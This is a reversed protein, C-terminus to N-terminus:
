GAGSMGPSPFIYTLAVIRGSRLTSTVLPPLNLRSLEALTRVAAVYSGAALAHVDTAASGIPRL